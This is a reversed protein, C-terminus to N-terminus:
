EQLMGYKQIWLIQASFAKFYVENDEASDQEVSYQDLACMTSHILPANTNTWIAPLLIRTGNGVDYHSCAQYRIAFPNIFNVQPDHYGHSRLSRFEFQMFLISPLFGGRSSHHM